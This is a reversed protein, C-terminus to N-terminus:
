GLGGEQILQTLRQKEEYSLDCKPMEKPGDGIRFNSTMLRQQIKSRKTSSEFHEVTWFYQKCDKCYVKRRTASVEIPEDVLEMIGKPDGKTVVRTLWVTQDKSDTHNVMLNDSNCFYCRM